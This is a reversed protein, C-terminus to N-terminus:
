FLVRYARIDTWHKLLKTPLSQVIIKSIVFKLVLYVTLIEMDFSLDKSRCNVVRGHRSTRAYLM